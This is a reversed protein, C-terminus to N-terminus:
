PKTFVLICLQLMLIIQITKAYYIISNSYKLSLFTEMVQTAEDCLPSHFFSLIIHFIRQYDYLEYCHKDRLGEGILTLAWEREIKNQFVFFFLTSNLLAAFPFGLVGYSKEM